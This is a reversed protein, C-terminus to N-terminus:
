DDSTLLNLFADFNNGYNREAVERILSGVEGGQSSEYAHRFKKLQWHNIDNGYRDNGHYVEIQSDLATYISLKLPERSPKDVIIKLSLPNEKGRGEPNDNERDRTTDIQKFCLARAKRLNQPDLFPFLFKYGGGLFQGAVFESSPRVPQRMSIVNQHDGFGLPKSNERDDEGNRRLVFYTNMHKSHGLRKLIGNDHLNKLIGNGDRLYRLHEVPPNLLRVQNDMNRLLHQPINMLEQSRESIKIGNCIRAFPCIYLVYNHSEHSPDRRTASEGSNSVDVTSKNRYDRFNNDGLYNEHHHCLLRHMERSCLIDGNIKEKISKHRERTFPRSRTAIEKSVEEDADRSKDTSLSEIPKFPFGFSDSSIPSNCSNSNRCDENSNRSDTRLTQGGENNLSKNIDTEEPSRLTRNRSNILIDQFLIELLISSTKGPIETTPNFSIRETTETEETTATTNADTSFENRKLCLIYRNGTDLALYSTYDLYVSSKLTKKWNQVKRTMGKLRARYLCIVDERDAITEILEELGEPEVMLSENTKGGTKQHELALSIIGAAKGVGGNSRVSNIIIRMLEGTTLPEDQHQSVSALWISGADDKLFEGVTQFARKVQERPPASVDAVEVSLIFFLTLVLPLLTAHLQYMTPM